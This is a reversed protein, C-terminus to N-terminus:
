AHIIQMLGAGSEICIRLAATIAEAAGCMNAGICISLVHRDTISGHCVVQARSSPARCGTFTRLIIQEAIADFQRADQAPAYAAAFRPYEAMSMGAAQAEQSFAPGGWTKEDGEPPRVRVRCTQPRERAIRAKEQATVLIPIGETVIAM